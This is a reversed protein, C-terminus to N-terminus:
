TARSLCPTWAELPSILQPNFAPEIPTTSTSFHLKHQPQHKLHPLHCRPITLLSPQRMPMQLLKHKKVEWYTGLYGPVQCASMPTIRVTVCDDRAEAGQTLMTRGERGTAVECCLITQAEPFLNM